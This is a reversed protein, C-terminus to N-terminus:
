PDFEGFQDGVLVEALADPGHGQGAGLADLAALTDLTGLAGLAGVGVLRACSSVNVSALTSRYQCSSATTLPWVGGGAATGAKSQSMAASRASGLGRLVGLVASARLAQGTAGRRGWGAFCGLCRLRWSCRVSRSPM